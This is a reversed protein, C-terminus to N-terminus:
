NDTWRDRGLSIWGKPLPGDEPWTSSELVALNEVTRRGKFAMDLDDTNLDADENIQIHDKIDVIVPEGKFYPLALVTVIRHLAERASFGPKLLDRVYNLDTGPELLSKLQEPQGAYYKEVSPVIKENASPQAWARSRRYEHYRQLVLRGAPEALDIRMVNDTSLVLRLQQTIWLALHSEFADVTRGRDHLRYYLSISNIGIEFAHCNLRGSINRLLYHDPTVSDIILAIWGRRPTTQIIRSYNVPHHRSRNILSIANELATMDMTKVFAFNYIDM